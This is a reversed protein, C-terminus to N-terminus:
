AMMGFSFQFSKDTGIKVSAVNVSITANNIIVHSSTTSPIYGEYADYNSPTEAPEELATVRIEAEGNL